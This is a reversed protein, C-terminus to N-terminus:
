TTAARAAHDQAHGQRQRAAPIRRRPGPRPLEVAPSSDRRGQAARRGRGPRPRRRRALPRDAAVARDLDSEAPDARRLGWRWLDGILLAAVHGKGFPQAVLAPATNGAADRVESLVVAGPKINGRPQADPVAADDALRQRSRTRPRGCDPGVAPALGRPHPGPSVRSPSTRRGADAPRPLGAAARRGAHPRVQGRRVLRPRRADPPRRRAPERLEAAPRAPGAHLVGAELDDLVIAHYRYLEDAAKPFGDRLEVDDLTGLRVLVPQDAREATDPDPHDFGDFLPSTPATGHTASTSSRSGGPSGCWASSSSRSRTTSPAASSSSSGTPGGARRLAGPLPRGGSRRRGAPQQQGLTQESPPPRTAARTRRGEGRGLGRVRPRSLLEVGKSSPASSSGSASRSTTAPPRRRRGSSTRARRTPSSPSSRRARSLRRGHRRGPRRRAGIRLEDPQDLRQQRRRGAAVGRSPPVM